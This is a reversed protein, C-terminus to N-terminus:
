SEALFAITADASGATGRATVWGARGTSAGAPKGVSELSFVMSRGCGARQASEATRTRRTRVAATAVAAISTAAPQVGPLELSSEPEDPVAKSNQDKM